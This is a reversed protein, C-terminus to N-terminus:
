TGAVGSFALLASQKLTDPLDNRKTAEQRLRTLSLSLLEVHQARLTQDWFPKIALAHEIPLMMYCQQAQM